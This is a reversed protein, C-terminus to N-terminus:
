RGRGELRSADGNVEVIQAFRVVLDSQDTCRFWGDSIGGFRILEALDYSDPLM